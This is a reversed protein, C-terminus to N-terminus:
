LPIVENQVSVPNTYIKQNKTHKEYESRKLELDSEATEAAAKQTDRELWRELVDARGDQPHRKPAKNKHALRALAAQTPWVYLNLRKTKGHEDTVTKQGDRLLRFGLLSSFAEQLISMSDEASSPSLGTFLKLDEASVSALQKSFNTVLAHQRHVIEGGQVAKLIATFGLATLAAVRAGQLKQNTDPIWWDLKEPALAEFRAADRAKLFDAGVTLHYQLSILGHWGDDDKMVIDASVEKALYKQGVEWVRQSRREDPTKVKKDALDEYARLSDPPTASAIAECEATHTEDRTAGLDRSIAKRADPDLADVETITHGEELWAARISDWYRHLGQNVRAGLKGYCDLAAGSYSTNGDSDIDIASDKLQALHQRTLRRQGQLLDRPNVEGGGVFAFNCARKPCSIHRPVKADRIRAAFQRVSSEPCVGSALIWMGAFHNYLDISVGSEIVPTAIVIDYEAITKDLTEICNFAKHGPEVVSESDIRIIKKDPFDAKLQRELIQSGWKSSVKQGTCAIFHKGGAAISETMSSYLDAHGQYHSINWPDPKRDSTIVFPKLDPQEAIDLVYKLLVDDMDADAVILRGTTEPSLLGKILAAQQKLIAIRSETCTSSSLAHWTESLFEDIFVDKNVWDRYDFAAASKGHLSDVCLCLGMARDGGPGSNKTDALYAISFRGSIQRGLQERHTIVLTRDEKQQALLAMLETKGSAKPAKLLILKASAPIAIAGLYRTTVAVDAPYSLKYSPLPIPPTYPKLKGKFEKARLIAKGAAAAGSKAIVDDIGKGLESDWRAIAVQAGAAKLLCGFKYSANAVKRQTDPKSDEDFIITSLGSGAFRAVDAILEASELPTVEGDVRENVRYGSNVGYLAIAVYGLSLLSLAKKAGETFIRPVEPHQEVWEWFSGDLPVEVGHRRAISKRTEVDVSPLYARSGNGSVSEYKISRGNEGNVRPQEPKGQWYTGDEQKLMAIAGYSHPQHTEWFRSVKQGLAYNPEWGREDKIIEVNARYLSPAIASGQCFEFEMREAFGLGTPAAGLGSLPSPIQAAVETVTQTDTQAFDRARRETALSITNFVDDADLGAARLDDIWDALNYGTGTQYCRWSPSDPDAYLWHCCYYDSAIDLCHEVGARDRDPCLVFLADKIDASYNGHAGGYNRWNGAGGISATAAQGIELLADATREDGVIRLPLGRVIAEQNIPDNIRYLHIQAKVEEPLGKQWGTGDWYEQWIKKGTATDLRAVRALPSGVASPYSYYTPVPAAGSDATVETVTQTDTQAVLLIATQCWSPTLTSNFSPSPLTTKVSSKGSESPIPPTENVVETAAQTATPTVTSTDDLLPAVGSDKKFESSYSSSM